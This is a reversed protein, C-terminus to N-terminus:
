IRVGRDDLGYGNGTTAIAGRRDVRNLINLLGMHLTNRSSRRGKDLIVPTYM